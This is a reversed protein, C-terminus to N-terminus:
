VSLRFYPSTKFSYLKVDLLLRNKQGLGACGRWFKPQSLKACLAPNRFSFKSELHSMITKDAKGGAELFIRMIEFPADPHRGPHFSVACKELQQVAASAEIM